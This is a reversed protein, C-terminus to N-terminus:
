STDRSTNEFRTYKPLFVIPITGLPGNRQKVIIIETPIRLTDVAQEHSIGPSSDRHLFMVVDADQEITGLKRLDALSPPKNKSHRGLHLLCVIPNDLERALSKPSRSIEILQEHRSLTCENEIENEKYM